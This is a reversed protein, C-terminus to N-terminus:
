SKELNKLLSTLGVYNKAQICYKKTSNGWKKNQNIREMFLSPYSVYTGGIVDIGRKFLPDPLFGATPGIISIREANQCHSLIEDISDNLVTTSTCLVKNCKNLLSPDLSVEWKKHKQVFHEKKEIIYLPINMKEIRKLLPPFLGVMGVLDGEQLSLLGLSDTTFDFSYNIQKLFSQCIANIAGFALTKRFLDKSEVEKALYYPNIRELTETKYDQAKRKIDYNLGIYIIGISDDQLKIAGFNNYNQDALNMEMSPFFIQEIKPVEFTRELSSILQIFDEIISM